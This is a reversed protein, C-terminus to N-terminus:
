RDGPEPAPEGPSLYAARTAEYLVRMADELIQLEPSNTPHDGPDDWVMRALVRPGDEEGPLDLKGALLARVDETRFWAVVQERDFRPAEAGVAATVQRWWDENLLEGPDPAARGSGGPALGPTLPQLGSLNAHEIEFRAEVVQPQTGSWFMLGVLAVLLMVERLRARRRWAMSGVLVVCAWFTFFAVQYWHPARIDADLSMSIPMESSTTMSGSTGHPLADPHLGMWLVAVGSLALIAVGAHKSIRRGGAIWWVALGGVAVALLLLLVAAAGIAM